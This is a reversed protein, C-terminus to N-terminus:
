SGGSPGLGRRPAGDPSPGFLVEGQPGHLGEDVAWCSVGENVSESVGERM